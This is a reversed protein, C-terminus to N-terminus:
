ITGRDEMFYGGMLERIENTARDAGGRATGFDKRFVATWNKRNAQWEWGAAALRELVAAVDTLPVDQFNVAVLIAQDQVAVQAFDLAALTAAGPAV